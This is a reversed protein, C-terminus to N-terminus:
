SLKREYLDCIGNCRVTHHHRWLNAAVHKEYPMESIEEPRDNNVNCFYYTDDIEYGIDCHKCNQCSETLHYNKM